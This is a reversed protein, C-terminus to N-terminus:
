HPLGSDYSPFNLADHLLCARGKHKKYYHWYPQFSNLSHTDFVSFGAPFVLIVFFSDNRLLRGCESLALITQM